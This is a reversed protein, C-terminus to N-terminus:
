TYEKVYIRADEIVQIAKQYKQIGPSTDSSDWLTMCTDFFFSLDENTNIKSVLNQLTSDSPHNPLYKKQLASIKDRMEPQFSCLDSVKTRRVTEKADLYGTKNQSLQLSNDLVSINECPFLSFGKKEYWSLGEDRFILNKRISIFQENEKKDTFLIQADDYLYVKKLKFWPVIMEFLEMGKTGSIKEGKEIKVLENLRGDESCRVHLIQCDEYGEDQKVSEHLKIDIFHDPKKGETFMEEPLAESEFIKQKQVTLAICLESEEDLTIYLSKMENPDKMYKCIKNLRQPFTEKEKFKSILEMQIEDFDVWKIEHPTKIKPNKSQPEKSYFVDKRKLSPFSNM